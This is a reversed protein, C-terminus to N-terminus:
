LPVSSSERGAGAVGVEGERREREGKEKEWNGHVSCSQELM